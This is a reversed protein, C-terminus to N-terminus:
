HYRNEDDGLTSTRGLLTLADPTEMHGPDDVGASVSGEMAITVVRYWTFFGAFALSRTAM